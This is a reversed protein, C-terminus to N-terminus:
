GRHRNKRKNKVSEVYSQLTKKKKYNQTVSKNEDKVVRWGPTGNIINEKKEKVYWYSKGDPAKIAKQNHIKSRAVKKSSAVDMDNFKKQLDKKKKAAAGKARAERQIKEYRVSAINKKLNSGKEDDSVVKKEFTKNTGTIKSKLNRLKYSIDRKVDEPYIYHWEGNRGREKRIYKHTGSHLIYDRFDNKM